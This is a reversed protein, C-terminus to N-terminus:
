GQEGAAAPTTEVPPPTIGYKESAPSILIGTGPGMKQYGEVVVREGAALGESIEVRGAMRQGVTVNRFEARNEANMVVVSAQDGAYRVSSEPIVVANEREELVVDLGGFLGPKLKKDPNPVHAKALITRSQQDISPDIFFVDGTIDMDPLAVSRMTIAQNIKILGVYREPIRFSAELPDLRVLKTLAQGATVYQGPSVLREGVVGPFPARIVTDAVERSLLNFGAEAVDYASKVQDYEQRSITQSDFLETARKYNTEALERRAKAEALRAKLKADDLRALVEGEEVMQGENFLIENVPASIESVIDLVDRAQLSGVVKVVVKVTEASAPAIVAQVSFDDPPGGRGAPPKGCGVSLASMMVCLGLMVNQKKM